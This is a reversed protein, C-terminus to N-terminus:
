KVKLSFYSEKRFNQIFEINQMSVMGDNFNLVNEKVAFLAVRTFMESDAEAATLNFTIERIFRM